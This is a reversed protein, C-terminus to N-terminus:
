LSSVTFLGIVAGGIGLYQTNDKVFGEVKSLCGNEYFTGLCSVPIKGKFAWDVSSSVGCCKFETQIKDWSDTIVADKGYLDMTKKLENELTDHIKDNFLFCLVTGIIM